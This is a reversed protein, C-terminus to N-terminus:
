IVCQNWSKTILDQEPSTTFLFHVRTTKLSWNKYPRMLYLDLVRIVRNDENKDFGKM